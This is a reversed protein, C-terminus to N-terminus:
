NQMKKAKYEETMPCRDRAIKFSYAEYPRLSCAVDKECLSCHIKVDDDNFWDYPDPDPEVKCYKCSTCVCETPAKDTKYVVKGRDNVVMCDVGLEEFNKIENKM